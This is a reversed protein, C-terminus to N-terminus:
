APLHAPRKGFMHEILEGMKVETDAKSEAIEAARKDAYFKLFLEATQRRFRTEELVLKREAQDLKRENQRAVLEDAKSRQLRALMELIGLWATPDKALEVKLTEPDFDALVQMLQSGAIAAPLDMSGGGAEQVGRAHRALDLTDAVREMRRRHDQYGGQRWQSLNEASIPQEHFHEDLVALVEPQRHLWAIIVPGSQGEDLRRNVEARIASPMRAIKGKRAPTSEDDPLDAPM